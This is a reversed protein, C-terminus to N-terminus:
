IRYGKKPMGKDLMSQGTSKLFFRSNPFLLNLLVPLCNNYFNQFIKFMTKVGKGRSCEDKTTLYRRVQQM